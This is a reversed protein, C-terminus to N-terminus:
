LLRKPCERSVKARAGLAETAARVSVTGCRQSQPSGTLHTLNMRSAPLAFYRCKLPPEAFHYM